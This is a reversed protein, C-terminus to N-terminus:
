RRLTLKKENSSVAGSPYAAQTRLRLRVSRQKKLKKRAATTFRVNVAVAGDPGAISKTASGVKVLASSRKKILRLKRATRADIFLTSSVKCTQSCTVRIRLGRSLSSRLRQGAGIAVTLTTGPAPPPPPDSGPDPGPGRDPGPPPSTGATLARHVNLRGGTLVKGSLSPKADVNALLAAKIQAVTASPNHAFLLAAAGAVHPAAMSTGSYYALAGGPQDSLIDVGPAALDVTAAGYNSFGALADNSNTAAVCLVNVQPLSCPYDPAVDNDDGVGDAGGNGAAIVFLTGQAVIVADALLQSYSPGGLSANVVKAGKQAAYTFAAAIDATTGEGTDDLAKLAMIRANWNIGPVGFADNGRAGITGAVHTGHGDVDSPNGDGYAWDWARWDDVKGNGDDDVLNTERGGGTEGPNTWMNPALDDHAQDVGSDVVGVAVSFSGTTVDWAEPADIDADPTGPAGLIQQGTNHLGWTRNFYGDNPTLSSRLVYNPEAYMVEDRRRLDAAAASVSEGSEIEVLEAGAVPLKRELSLDEERRVEARDAGQEFRVILEGPVAEPAAASAPPPVAAVALTALM